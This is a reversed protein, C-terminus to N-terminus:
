DTVDEYILRSVAEMRKDFEKQNALYYATDWSKPKDNDELYEIILVRFTNNVCHKIAKVNKQGPKNALDSYQFHYKNM